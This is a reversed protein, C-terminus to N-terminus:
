KISSEYIRNLKYMKHFSDYTYLEDDDKFQADLADHFKHNNPIAAKLNAKTLAQPVAVADKSFFYMPVYKTVEKPSHAPHQYVYILIAEGPNLIEYTKDDVFRFDEGKTNRYGYTESKQLTYTTDHHKVKLAADNFLVYDNIKHKETKYNIAYSLKQNKFDTATQYIGSSDKQGFATVSFFFATILVLISPKSKM